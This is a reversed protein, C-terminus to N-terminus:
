QWVYSCAIGSFYFVYMCICVIHIQIYICQIKMECLHFLLTVCRSSDLRGYSYPMDRMCIFLKVCAVSENACIHVLSDSECMHVICDYAHTMDCICILHQEHTVGRLLIRWAVASSFMMDGSARCWYMTAYMIRPMYVRTLDCLHILCKGRKLWIM